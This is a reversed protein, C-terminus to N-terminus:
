ERGCTAASLRQTIPGPARLPHGAIERVPWMGIVANTLFLEDARYVRELPVPEEVVAMGFETATEAVLERMIGAVGCQSLSPTVLTGEKEVLFLNAQTAEIVNEDEDCLLGEPINPDDWEARALVQELRNLHKMGALAPSHGIRTRCLRVCVGADTFAAPYDPAPNLTLIRTPAALAPPRYGRGGPGRTLVLKAVLRPGDAHGKLLRELESRWVSEDPAPIGLRRAGARLRRMHRGWRRPRASEVLITEFLGDGYQLGRDHASVGTVALGDVLVALPAHADRPETM